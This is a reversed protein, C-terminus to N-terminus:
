IKKKKKESGSVVVKTGSSDNNGYGRAFCVRVLCWVVWGFGLMVVLATASEVYWARDLDLVPVTLPNVLRGGGGGVM